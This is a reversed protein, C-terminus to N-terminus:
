LGGAWRFPGTVSPLCTEGSAGISSSSVWSRLRRGTHRGPFEAEQRHRAPWQLRPDSPFTGGVGIIGLEESEVLEVQAGPMGPAFGAPPDQQRPHRHTSPEHVTSRLTSDDIKPALAPRAIARPARPETTRRQREAPVGAHKRRSWSCLWRKEAIANGQGLPQPSRGPLKMSMPAVVWDSTKWTNLTNRHRQTQDRGRQHHLRQHVGATVRDKAPKQCCASRVKAAGGKMGPPRCRAPM